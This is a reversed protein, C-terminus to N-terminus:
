YRGTHFDRDIKCAMLSVLRAMGELDNLDACEVPTHTYRAPFGMDLCAVYNGELQVYASDTLMGLTAFEQLPLGNDHACSLALQYLGKHAITGNLTGRGHFNYLSVAPGKGLATEYKAKLEPTDGAMTVDLCIGIEPHISRAAIVAGRLNYEEWVTGVLYVTSKHSSGKLYEAIQVLAACGCRDDVATGCVRDGMLKTFSPKYIVPCGVHIGADIVDKKGSAGVDLFLSTVLDVKYKEEPPTVHHSKVGIVGSIYEGNINSLSVDLAPLVKEPIGGMRDVQILGDEEIKRVIFGLQDMHAFVMIVPALSDTGEFKAIVNGARDTHVDSSYQELHKRMAAAMKQEYGSAAELLMFEKVTEIFDM